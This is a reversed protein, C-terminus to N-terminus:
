CWRPASTTASAAGPRAARRRGPVCRCWCRAVTRDLLASSAPWCPRRGLRDPRAQGFESPQVRFPRRRRDLQPQRQGRRGLRAHLVLLLLASPSRAAAALGAGAVGAGAAPQALVMRRCRRPRRVRGAQRLGLVLLQDAPLSEVSSSSLVMVLGICSCRSPPLRAAPLLLDAPSDCGPRRPRRGLRRRRDAAAPPAGRVAGSGTRPATSAPRQRRRRATVACPRPSRTAASPTTPSCTWRPARRPSCCRTAPAPWRAGRRPSRRRGDPCRALRPAAVEVVPVDPAHRALAERSRRRPRARAAGGGRLRTRAAAGGPRRVDAGKALGGAVWVVPDYAPLSAQPPTRTPPRPTTSGPARRRREAVRAIRHPDPRFARLGDRVAAPPCATAGPGAGGRGARQRRQAAGAAPRRRRPRRGAHGARRGLHARQPSSRGTSLARRRRRRAHSLAPCARPHLRDGPLGRGRRRRPGAARDGPRRRQLRLRGRHEAYVRGKDRPTPRAALRALRPPRPRRQPLGSALPACRTRGTCSSAPCSSRSCTTPSAPAAGGRGAPHRHQRRRRARLGAAGCSRRSCRSPPPRATPAPSADAVAGRGRAPAAALGARGRGLGPHGAAAAAALLPATPAGARALHRGPRSAARAAATAGSPGLRVDAGLVDCCAAGARAAGDGADARRGVTVRAGLDLLADAAAFGAVGIGAVVCACGAWDRRPRCATWRRRRPTAGDATM